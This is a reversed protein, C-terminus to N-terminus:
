VVGAAVGAGAGWGGGRNAGRGGAQAARGVAVVEGCCDRCFRPECWVVRPDSRTSDVVHQAQNVLVGLQAQNLRRVDPRRATDFSEDTPIARLTYAYTIDIGWAGGREKQMAFDYTDFAGHKSLSAQEVVRLQTIASAVIRGSTHTTDTYAQVTYLPGQGRQFMSKARFQEMMFGFGGRIDTVRFKRSVTRYNSILERTFNTAAEAVSAGNAPPSSTAGAVGSVDAGLAIVAIAVAALSRRLVRHARRLTRSQKQSDTMLAEKLLDLDNATSDHCPWFENPWVV